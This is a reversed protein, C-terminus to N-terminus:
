VLYYAVNLNHFVTAICSSIGQNYIQLKIVFGVYFM